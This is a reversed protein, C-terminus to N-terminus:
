LFQSSHRLKIQLGKRIVFLTEDGSVNKYEHFLIVQDWVYFALPGITEVVGKETTTSLIPLCMTYNTKDMGLKFHLCSSSFFYQM